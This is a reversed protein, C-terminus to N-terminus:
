PSEYNLNILNNIIVYQILQAINKMNLKILTRSRYTSITKDSLSLKAAMQKVSKGSATMCMIEYERDSLLEHATKKGGTEVYSILSDTISSSVYKKGNLIKKVATKLEGLKAKKILYGDAGAKLARIAFQEEPYTSLILVRLDPKDSKIQKLIDIGNRGPMAIDLLVANYDNKWIAKIVEQGSSVEDLVVNKLMDTLFHRVGRRFIEHEDAILIKVVLERSRVTRKNNLKDM